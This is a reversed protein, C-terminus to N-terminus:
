VKCFCSVVVLSEKCLFVGLSTPHGISLFFFIIESNIHQHCSYNVLNTTILIFHILKKSPTHEMKYYFTNQTYTLILSLAKTHVKYTMIFISSFRVATFDPWKAVLFHCSAAKLIAHRSCTAWLRKLPYSLLHFIGALILFMGYQQSQQGRSGSVQIPSMRLCSLKKWVINSPDTFSLVGSSFKTQFVHLLYHVM